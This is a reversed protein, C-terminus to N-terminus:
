LSGDMLILDHPAKTALNCEMQLMLARAINLNEDDHVEACSFVEHNADTWHSPENASLGEVGVAGAVIMDIAMLRDSACAGDIACTSYSKDTQLESDNLIIKNSEMQSRFEHKKEQLSAVSHSLSIGIKDGEELMKQLMSAPIELSPTIQQDMKPITEIMYQERGQFVREREYRM